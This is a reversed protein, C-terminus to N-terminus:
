NKELKRWLTDDDEQKDELIIKTTKVVEEQITYQVDQMIEKDKGKQKMTNSIAMEQETKKYGSPYFELNDYKIWNRKKDNKLTRKQDEQSLFTAELFQKGGVVIIRTFHLIYHEQHLQCSKM